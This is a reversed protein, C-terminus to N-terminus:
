NGYLIGAMGGSFRLVNYNLAYVQMKLSDAVTSGLKLSSLKLQATDLRSFNCHGNPQLCGVQGEAFSYMYFKTNLPGFGLKYTPSTYMCHHAPQFWGLYSSSMNEFLPTGNLYLTAGTFEFDDNGSNTVPVTEKYFGFFLAKVPHNLYSLDIDLNSGSTQTDLTLNQVQTILLEFNTKTFMEREPQDLYISNVYLNPISTKGSGVYDAGWSVRLEVEHYATSILPLFGGKRCFFFKMPLINKCTTSTVTASAPNQGGYFGSMDEALFHGDIGAIWKKSQRDIVQGGIMLTFVSETTVNGTVINANRVAAARDGYAAWEFPFELWMANILDGCGTIKYTAESTGGQGTIRVPAQSFNSHKTFRQRFVAPNEALLIDDQVGRSVLNVIAGKSSSM